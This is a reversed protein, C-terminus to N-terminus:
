AEDLKKDREWQPYFDGHDLKQEKKQAFEAANKAVM